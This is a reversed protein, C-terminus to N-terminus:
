VEKFHFKEAIVMLSTELLGKLYELDTNKEAFQLSFHDAFDKAESRYLETNIGVDIFLARKYNKFLVKEFKNKSKLWDTFMDRWIKCWGPTLFFTGPEKLLENNYDEKGLIMEVCNSAKVREAPFTELLESMNPYCHGYIIIFYNFSASLGDLTTKLEEALREPYIHLAPDLFFPILFAPKGYLVKRIEEEV